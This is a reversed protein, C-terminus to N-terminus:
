ENLGKIMAAGSLIKYTGEATEGSGAHHPKDDFHMMNM